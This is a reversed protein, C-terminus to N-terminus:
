LCVYTPKSKPVPSKPLMPSKLPTLLEKAQAIAQILAQDRSTLDAVNSLPSSALASSELISPELVSPLDISNSQSRCFSVVTSPEARSPDVEAWIENKEPLLVPEFAHQQASIAEIQDLWPEVLKRAYSGYAVGAVAPKPMSGQSQHPLNGQSSLLNLEGLKPVTYANTGGALQVYGPPGFELVKQALKIAAHTTGKGLDGSMPRGDTQWILPISLPSVLEYISWLYDIFGPGDGCSIALLKLDAIYPLLTSWLSKFQAARDVATHIEVADVTPLLTLAIARWDAQHYTATICDLPCVPICRGCGYCREEIVGQSNAFQSANDLGEKTWVIASAPCVTECPRACEPPCVQPNFAAKRFHFDDGDNISVMLLPSPRTMIKEGPCAGPLSKYGSGPCVVDTQFNQASKIGTRAATVVAPDAAVDICDVGAVAYILALDQIAPLHQYSAGCILKAWCGEKLSTLPSRYSTM